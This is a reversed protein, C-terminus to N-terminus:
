YFSFGPKTLRIEHVVLRNHLNVLGNFSLSKFTKAPHPKPFGAKKLFRTEGLTEM